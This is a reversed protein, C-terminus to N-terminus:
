TSRPRHRKSSKTGIAPRLEIPSEPIDRESFSHNFPLCENAAIISSMLVGRTLTKRTSGLLYIKVDFAPGAGKNHIACHFTLSIDVRKLNVESGGLDNKYFFAPPCQSIPDLSSRSEIPSIFCFPKIRKIENADAKKNGTYALWALGLTGVAVFFDIVIKFYDM